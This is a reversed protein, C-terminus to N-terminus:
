RKYGMSKAVSLVRSVYSYSHNYNYLAGVINGRAGGNKALINAASFIADHVDYISAIGDGDGDVAYAVFTSPIFQMPGTAGAYSTRTTDGSQRTEVYHVAAIIQWPIMYMDGAEQYIQTLGARKVNHTTLSAIVAAIQTERAMSVRYKIEEPTAHPLFKYKNTLVDLTQVNDPLNVIYYIEQDDKPIDLTLLNIAIVSVAGIFTFFTIVVFASVFFIKPNIKKLFRKNKQYSAVLDSLPELIEVKTKKASSTPRRITDVKRAM